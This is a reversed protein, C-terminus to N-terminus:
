TWEIKGEIDGKFFGKDKMQVKVVWADLDLSKCDRVHFLPVAEKSAGHFGPLGGVVCYESQASLFNGTLSPPWESM